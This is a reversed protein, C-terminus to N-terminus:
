IRWALTLPLSSSAGPGVVRSFVNGARRGAFREMGGGLSRQLFRRRAVRRRGFRLALM